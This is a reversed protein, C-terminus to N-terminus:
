LTVKCGAGAAAPDVGPEPCGPGAPAAPVADLICGVAPPTLDCTFPILIEVVYQSIQVAQPGFFELTELDEATIQSIEVLQPGDFELTEVDETAVQSVLTTSATPDVELDEVAYQTVETFTIPTDITGTGQFSAVPATVNADGAATRGVFVAIANAWTPAVGGYTFIASISANDKFQRSFGSDAFNGFNFRQVWPPIYTPGISSVFSATSTSNTAVAVGHDRSPVGATITVPGFGGNQAAHLDLPDVTGFGDWEEATWGNSGALTPTITFTGSAVVNWAYWIGVTNGGSQAAQHYVNVGVGQNDMNAPGSIGGYVVILNGPTVPNPFSLSAGGNTPGATQVLKHFPPFVTGLGTYSGVPTTVAGPGRPIQASGLGLVINALRSLLEGLKATFAM